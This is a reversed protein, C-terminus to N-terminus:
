INKLDNEYLELMNHFAREFQDDNLPDVDGREYEVFDLYERVFYRLKKNLEAIERDKLELRAKLDYYEAEYNM